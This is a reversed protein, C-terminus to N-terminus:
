NIFDCVQQLLDESERKSEEAIKEGVKCLDEVLALVSQDLDESRDTSLNRARDQLEVLASLAEGEFFDFSTSCHRSECDYNYVLELYYCCTKGLGQIIVKGNDGYGESVIEKHGNEILEAIKSRARILEGEVVRHKDLVEELQNELACRDAELSQIYAKAETLQESLDSRTQAEDILQRTLSSIKRELSDVKSGDDGGGSACFSKKVNVSMALVANAEAKLKELCSDLENSINRSDVEEANSTDIFTILDSLDPALHVRKINSVSDSTKLSSSDSSNSINIDTDKLPIDSKEFGQKLLEEVLTTNLEDECRTFYKLLEGLLNRLGSM